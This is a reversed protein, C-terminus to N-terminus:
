SEDVHNPIFNGNSLKWSVKAPTDEKHIRSRGTANQVVRPLWPIIKVAVRLRKLFLARGMRGNAGETM